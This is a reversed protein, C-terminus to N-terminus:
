LGAWNLVLVALPFLLAFWGVGLLILARSEGMGLMWRFPVVLTGIVLTTVAWRMAQGASQTFVLVAVFAIVAFGLVMPALRSLVFLFEAILRTM